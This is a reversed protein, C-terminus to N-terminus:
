SIEMDEQTSDLFSKLEAETLLRFKEDKGVIGISVNYVNLEQEAASARLAKVGHKILDDRSV